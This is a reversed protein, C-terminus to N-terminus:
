ENNKVIKGVFRKEGSIIEMIYIGASAFSIDIMEESDGILLINRQYICNGLIDKVSIKLEKLNLDGIKINFVGKGPNPYIIGFEFNTVDLVATGSFYFPDSLASCGFADQVEVKYFGIKDPKYYQSTAGAIPEDKYYWKYTQASSAALEDGGRTITPKQPIPYVHISKSISDECANADKFRYTI